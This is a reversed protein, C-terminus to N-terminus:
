LKFACQKRPYVIEREREGSAVAACMRRGEGPAGVGIVGPVPSAEGDISNELGGAGYGGAVAIGSAPGVATVMAFDSESPVVPDPLTPYPPDCCEREPFESAEGPRPVHVFVTGLLVVAIVHVLM